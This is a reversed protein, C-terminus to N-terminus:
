ARREITLLDRHCDPCVICADGSGIVEVDHARLGRQCYPCSLPAARVICDGSYAATPADVRPPNFLPKM